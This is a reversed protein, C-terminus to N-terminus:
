KGRDRDVGDSISLVCGLHVAQAPRLFSLGSRQWLDSEGTGAPLGHWPEICLLDADHPSWVALSGFNTWELRVSRGTPCSYTMSTSRLSDMVVAGPAFHRDLLDLKTGVAVTEFHESCLLGDEVRRIPAPEIRDFEITHSERETGSELPWAFAPHWGLAFPMDTVGNNAVEFGVRLAAGRVRYTVSLSFEFPYRGRSWSDASMTMSVHDSSRSDIGFELDRAFGHQSVEYEVGDVLYRDDPQRCIFPFLIPACRPWQHGAQWLYEHGDSGRVSRVEAGLTSVTVEIGDSTLRVTEGAPAVNM